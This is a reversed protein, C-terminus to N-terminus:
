SRVLARGRHTLRQFLSLIAQQAAALRGERSLASSLATLAMLRKTPAHRELESAVEQTRSHQLRCFLCFTCVHPVHPAHRELESAVDPTHPVPSVFLCVCM